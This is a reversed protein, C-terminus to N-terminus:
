LRAGLLRAGSGDPPPMGPQMATTFNGIHGSVFGFSVGHQPRGATVAEPLRLRPRPAGVPGPPLRPPLSAGGCASWPGPRIHRSGASASSRRPHPFAAATRPWVPTRSRSTSVPGDASLAGNLPCRPGGSLPPRTGPLATRLRRTCRGSLRRPHGPVLRLPTAAVGFVSYIRLSRGVMEAPRPRHPTRNRPRLDRSAGEPPPPPPSPPPPPGPSPRARPSDGSPWRSAPGDRTSAALRREM